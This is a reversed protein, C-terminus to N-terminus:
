TATEPKGLPLLTNKECAMITKQSSQKIKKKRAYQCQTEDTVALCHQNEDRLIALNFPLAACIPILIEETIVTKIEKRPM